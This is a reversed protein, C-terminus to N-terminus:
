PASARRARSGPSLREPAACIAALSATLLFKERLPDVEFPQGEAMWEELAEAPGPLLHKGLPKGIATDEVILYCGPSVLDPLERLEQRVHAAAHDSDLNLMVRKGAAAPGSESSSTPTVSSGEILTVRPHEPVRPDVTSLDIDVALV